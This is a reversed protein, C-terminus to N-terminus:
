KWRLVLTKYLIPVVILTMFSWVFLGFIITFWLWAWFEDQLALPLVWFITTLTTVIIPQLRSKWAIIIQEDYDIKWKKENNKIGKNIRDILIIADNVVIWTLAIFWIAFPMSYPNWTFYLGFNVGLLALVISYLVIVPQKYSNFQFVLISFILFLSIFLSKITSVILDKNEESEWWKIFWIWEPFVYSSAYEDFIPQIDTPLFWNEVDSWVSIIINWDERTIANVSQKFDFSAFDWVRIDWVRTSIITNEIDEPNLNEEFDKFSIIIDNDEFESKISWAKISNTHFYLETLIDNQNLWINSLKEKDFKFVFQWPSESSSTVINKAGPLTKLYEEFDKSIAKLLEFWKASSSTLKVWVPSWGPPWDKLSAVSVELWESSLVILKDSIEKEVDYVSRLNEEKRINKWILDVYVSLTNWNVTIYYNEVEEVGSVSEDVIAIYKSMYKEDVGTEAKISINVVWMDTSPFIIFGIKPSMFVFSWILLIIPVFVFLVKSLTNNLVRILTWEYLSAIWHLFKERTSLKDIEKETKWKRDESLIKKDESLMSKEYKKDKHYTKLSWMFKVFLASSLTLSLILAALLTSFVTVPIYVLFKWMIGPLFMLPLFAVLTTMTWSILPSRFDRIALMIASRRSYWLKMKESAWEIIVIVTDIAIWLTLVLSFNTLFNLSMWILDLVSFTILFSLPLLFSAIIWERFWVFFMIVLFVLIITTIATNSLNEYDKIIEASMDKSYKVSLWEFEPDNSLLNELSQKSSSSAEFVNAWEKKNFVVSIYNKWSFNYWWFRRIEDWPYESTFYAIDSLLVQSIWNDRIIVNKLANLNELEWEFRFDYNLSWVKFNWIPTDKNNSKIINAIEIISLGLQEVKSKDLLVKIDYDADWTWRSMWQKSDLWGIDIDWIGDKWELKNKLLKAKKYLSFDDFIDADGYILSEYILTNNSSIEVVAPDSADEPFNINDVKDKIDTLVDRTIANTDLEITTVSNWVSSTSTIKKIWDIDSIEREVEETILSDIDEPSVWPYSIAVNILGFKVDPSSEKPITYLSFIWSIIILFILLFSTRINKIWFGFFWKEVGPCERKDKCSLEGQLSKNNM